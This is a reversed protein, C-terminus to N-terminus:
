GPSSQCVMLPSLEPSPNSQFIVLMWTQWKEKAPSCCMLVLSRVLTMRWYRLLDSIRVKRKLPNGTKWLHYLKAKIMPVLQWPHFSAYTWKLQDTSWRVSFSFNMMCNFFFPRCWLIKFKHNLDSDVLM